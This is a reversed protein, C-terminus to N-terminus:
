KAPLRADIWDIIDQMVQEKGVDNLLDHHHGEYLKLTKDSSGATDFFLKSGRPKTAKDATGHLILLPVTIRPFEKKLREDARVMEAVTKTPQSEHAILPDANMTKVVAPDRSFDENKLALVHAHPAVHSLGKLVALAFDPAPVQHAFSECILGALESQNEVAYICSVVGGASHGLLFAPLGRERSKAIHVMSSVDSVYDAFSDIYYREGDSHGRGRLDLAYVALGQAVLQRAVWQYYGSHANFGHVIVVVGRPKGEPRWSRFFIGLGGVGIFKDDTEAIDIADSM